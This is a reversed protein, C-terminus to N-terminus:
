LLIKATVKSSFKAFAVPVFTFPYLISMANKVAIVITTPILIMPVISIDLRIIKGARVEILTHLLKLDTTIEEDITDITQKKKPIIADKAKEVGAPALM